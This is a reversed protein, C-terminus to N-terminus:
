QAGDSSIIDCFAFDTFEMFAAASGNEAIEAYLPTCDPAFWVTYSLTRGSVESECCLRLAHEEEGFSEENQELLCGEAVARLTLPVCNAASLGQVAGGADLVAGDYELKLGDGSLQASVGALAEPSLVTVKTEEGGGDLRLTCRMDGDERVIEVEAVARYSAPAAYKERVAAARDATEEAGCGTLSLLLTGALLLATLKRM